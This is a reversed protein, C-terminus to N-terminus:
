CCVVDFLNIRPGADFGCSELSTVAPSCDSPGCVTGLAVGVTSCAFCPRCTRTWGNRVLSTWELRALQVGSFGFRHPPVLLHFAPPTSASPLPPKYPQVGTGDQSCLVFPLWNCFMLLPLPCHSDVKQFKLLPPVLLLLLRFLLCPSVSSAAVLSAFAAASLWETPGELLSVSGSGSSPAEQESGVIWMKAMVGPLGLVCETVTKIRRNRGCVSSSGSFFLLSSISFDL